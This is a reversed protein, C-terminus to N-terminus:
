LQIFLFFFHIYFFVPRPGPCHYVNNQTHHLGNGDNAPLTATTPANPTQTSLSTTTTSSLPLVDADADVTHHNIASMIVHVQPQMIFVHMGNRSVSLLSKSSNKFFLRANRLAM